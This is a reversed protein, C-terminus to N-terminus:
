KAIDKFLSNLSPAEWTGPDQAEAIKIPKPKRSIVPKRVATTTMAADRAWAHAGVFAGYGNNARKGWGRDVLHRAWAYRSKGLKPSAYTQWGAEYMVAAYLNNIGLLTPKM